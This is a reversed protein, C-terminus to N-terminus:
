AARIFAEFPITLDSIYSNPFGQVLGVRKLIREDENVRVKGM